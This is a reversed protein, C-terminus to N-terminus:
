LLNSVIRLLETQEFRQKVLYADAGLDLGRQQEIPESRSTLLIVPINFSKKIRQLLELGDMQPMQVDSVVLDVPELALLDLAEQGDNATLVEYGNNELVGQALTRTTV